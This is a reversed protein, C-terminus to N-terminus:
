EEFAVGRGRHEAVEAELDEGGLRGGPPPLNGRGWGPVAPVRQAARGPVVPAGPLEQVPQLGLKDAYWARAHDLDTVPITPHVDGHNLM